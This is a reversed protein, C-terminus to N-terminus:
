SFVRTSERPSTLLFVTREDLMMTTIEEKNFFDELVDPHKYGWRGVIVLVILSKKTIKNDLNRKVLGTPLTGKLNQSSRPVPGLGGPGVLAQLQKRTFTRDLANFLGDWM